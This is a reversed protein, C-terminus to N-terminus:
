PAPAPATPTTAAAANLLGWGYLEDYGANGLDRATTELRSKIAEPSPREGLTRAGLLLAITGSVHPVAM